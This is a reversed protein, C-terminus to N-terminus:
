SAPTAARRHCTEWSSVPASHSRRLASGARAPRSAFGYGLSCISAETHASCFTFSSSQGNTQENPSQLQTSGQDQLSHSGRARDGVVRPRDGVACTFSGRYWRWWHGGLQLSAHVTQRARRVWGAVVGGCCRWGTGRGPCAGGRRGRAGPAACLYPGRHKPKPCAGGRWGRGGPAACLHPVRHARADRARAEGARGRVGRRLQALM